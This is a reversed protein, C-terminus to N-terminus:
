LFIKQLHKIVVKSDNTRTAIAEVWKSIYNVTVLIYLNNHSPPFPEMFGIGGYILCNWRLFAVKVCRIDSVFTGRENADMM